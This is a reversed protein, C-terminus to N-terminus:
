MSRGVHCRRARRHQRRISRARVNTASSSPAKELQDGPRLVRPDEPARQARRATLAPSAAARVARRRPLMVPRHHEMHRGITSKATLDWLCTGMERMAMTSTIWGVTWGTEIAWVGWGPDGDSGGTTGLAQLRIRPVMGRGAGPADREPDPDEDPLRHASGRGPLDCPGDHDRGSRAVGPPRFEDRLAHGGGLRQQVPYYRVRRHRITRQDHNRRHPPSPDGPPM